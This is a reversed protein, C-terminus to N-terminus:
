RVFSAIYHEVNDLGPKLLVHCKSGINMNMESFDVQSGLVWVPIMCVCVCM